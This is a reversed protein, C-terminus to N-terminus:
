SIEKPKNNFINTIKQESNIKMMLYLIIGITTQEFTKVLLHTSIIRNFNSYSCYISIQNLLVYGNLLFFFSFYVIGVGYLKELRLSYIQMIWVFPFYSIIKLWNNLERTLVINRLNGLLNTWDSILLLILFATMVGILYHRSKDKAEEKM